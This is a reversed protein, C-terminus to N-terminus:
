FQQAVSIIRIRRYEKFASLEHVHEENYPSADVVIAETNVLESIRESRMPRFMVIADYKKDNKRDARMHCVAGYGKLISKLEKAVEGGGYILCCARECPLSLELLLVKALGKAALKPNDHYFM